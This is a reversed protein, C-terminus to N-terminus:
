EDCVVEFADQPLVGVAISAAKCADSYSVGETEVLQLAIFKTVEDKRKTSYGFEVYARVYGFALLEIDIFSM